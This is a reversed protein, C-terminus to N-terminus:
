DQWTAFQIILEQLLAHRENDSLSEAPKLIGNALAKSQTLAEKRHIRADM